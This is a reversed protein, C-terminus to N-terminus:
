YIISAFFYIITKLVISSVGGSSESAVSFNLTSSAFYVSAAFGGILILAPTGFQPWNNKKNGNNNGSNNKGGFGGNKDNKDNNNKDSNSNKENPKMDPFNLGFGSWFDEKKNTPNNPSVDKKVKDANPETKEPGNGASKPQDKLPLVPPKGEKSEKDFHSFGKNSLFYIGGNHPFNRHLSVGTRALRSLMM